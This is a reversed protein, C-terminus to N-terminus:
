LFMPSMGLLYAGVQVKAANRNKYASFTAHLATVAAYHKNPCESWKFNTRTIPIKNLIQQHLTGFRIEKQGYININELAQIHFTGM